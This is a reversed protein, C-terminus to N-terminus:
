AGCADREGVRGAVCGAESGRTQGLARPLPLRGVEEVPELFRSLAVEVDLPILWAPDAKPRKLGSVMGKTVVLDRVSAM